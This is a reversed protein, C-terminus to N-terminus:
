APRGIFRLPPGHVPQDQVQSLRIESDPGFCRKEHHFGDEQAFSPVHISFAGARM